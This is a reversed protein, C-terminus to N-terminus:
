LFAVIVLSWQFSWILIMDEGVRPIYMRIALGLIDQVM